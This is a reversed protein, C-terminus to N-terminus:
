FDGNVHAGKKHHNKIKPKSATTFVNMKTQFATMQMWLLGYSYLCLNFVNWYAESGYFSIVEFYMFLQCECNVLMLKFWYAM